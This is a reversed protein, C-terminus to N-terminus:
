GVSRFHIRRNSSLPSPPSTLRLDEDRVIKAGADGFGAAILRVQIGRVGLHGTMVTQGDDRRADSFRTFFGPGLTPHEDVPQLQADHRRIRRVEVWVLQGPRMHLGFQASLRGPGLRLQLGPRVADQSAQLLARMQDGAEEMGGRANKSHCSAKSVVPITVHYHTYLFERSTLGM